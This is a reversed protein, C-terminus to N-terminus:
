SQTSSSEKDAEAAQVHKELFNVLAKPAEPIENAEFSFFNRQLGPLQTAITKETSKVKELRSSPAIMLKEIEAMNVMKINSIEVKKEEFEEKTKLQYRNIDIEGLSDSFGDTGIHTSEKEIFDFIKQCDENVGKTIRKYSELNTEWVKIMADGKLQESIPLNQSKGTEEKQLATIIKQFSNRVAKAEREKQVAKDMSRKSEQYYNQIIELNCFVKQQEEEISVYIESAKNKFQDIEIVQNAISIIKNQLSKNENGLQQVQDQTVQIM